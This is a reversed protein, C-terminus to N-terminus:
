SSSKEVNGYAFYESGSPEAYRVNPNYRIAEVVDISTVHLDIYNIVESDFIVIEKESKSKTAADSEMDVVLSVIERKISLSKKTRHELFPESDYGVTLINGGNMVASWLVYADVDEWRFTGTEELYRNIITNIEFPDLPELKSLKPSNAEQQLEDKTCSFAITLIALFLYFLRKM